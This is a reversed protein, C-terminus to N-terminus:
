PADSMTEMSTEVHQLVTRLRDADDATLYEGLYDAAAARVTAISRAALETLFVRVARRDEPAPERRVVGREALARLVASANSSKLGLRQALASPGTGPHRDVDRVVLVELASLQVVESVQQEHDHIRRAISVILASVDAVSERESMTAM